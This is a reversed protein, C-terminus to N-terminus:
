MYNMHLFRMIVTVLHSMEETQDIPEYMFIVYEDQTEELILIAAAYKMMTKESSAIESRESTMNSLTKDIYILDGESTVCLELAQQLPVARHQFCWTKFSKLYM